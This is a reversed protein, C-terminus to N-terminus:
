NGEGSGEEKTEEKHVGLYKEIGNIMDDDEVFFPDYGGLINCILQGFRWDPVASEWAKALRDCFKKIRKPDRM